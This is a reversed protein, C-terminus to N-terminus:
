FVDILPSSFYWPNISRLGSRVKMMSRAGEDHSFPPGNDHAAGVVHLAPQMSSALNGVEVRKIV